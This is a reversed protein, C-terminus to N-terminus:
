ARSSQFAHLVEPDGLNSDSEIRWSTICIGEYANAVPDGLVTLPFSGGRPPKVMISIGQPAVILSGLPRDKRPDVAAAPDLRLSCNPVYFRPGTEGEPRYFIAEYPTEGALSAIALGERVQGLMGLGIYPEQILTIGARKTPDFTIQRHDIM